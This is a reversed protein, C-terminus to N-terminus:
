VFLRYSRGLLGGLGRNRALYVVALAVSVLLWGIMIVRAEPRVSYDIRLERQDRDRRQATVSLRASEPVLANALYASGGRAHDNKFLIQHRGSSLSVHGASAALRITGEGRRVAAPDPFMWSTLRLPLPGQDLELELARVVHAAYGAQEEDSLLGDGDRDIAAIISEAVDIGPTLDLEIQVGDPQLGIKAAQLYEDRRHASTSGVGCLVLLAAVGIRRSRSTNRM